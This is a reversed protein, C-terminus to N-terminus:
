GLHVSSSIVSRTSSFQMSLHHQSSLFRRVWAGPIPSTRGPSIPADGIAIKFTFQCWFRSSVMSSFIWHGFAEMHQFATAQWHVLKVHPKGPSLFLGTILFLFCCNNKKERRKGATSSYSSNPSGKLAPTLLSFIRLLKMKPLTEISPTPLLDAFYVHYM